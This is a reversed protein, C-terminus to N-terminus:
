LVDFWWHFRCPIGALIHLSWIPNWKWPHVADSFSILIIDLVYIFFRYICVFFFVFVTSSHALLPEAVFVYVEVSWNVVRSNRASQPRERAM